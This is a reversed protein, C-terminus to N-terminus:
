VSATDTPTGGGPNSATILINGFGDVSVADTGGGHPLFGM